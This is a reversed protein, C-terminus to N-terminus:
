WHGVLIDSGMQDAAPSPPPLTILRLDPNFVQSPDLTNQGADQGTVKLSPVGRGGCVRQAFVVAQVVVDLKVLFRLVFLRRM